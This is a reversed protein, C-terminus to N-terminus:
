AEKEERLNTVVRRNQAKCEIDDCDRVLRETGYGKAWLRDPSVGKSVLYAMVADARKQSLSINAADGGPDDAFGQVKAYWNPNAKLFEAQKDLTMKATDDLTASGQTFYARRGVNVIFDQESGASIKEFGAAPANTVDPTSAAEMTNCGSLALAAM